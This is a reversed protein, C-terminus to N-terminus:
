EVLQRVQGVTDNLLDKVFNVTFTAGTIADFESEGDPQGEGVVTLPGKKGRFQERFWAEGIRAGLGPTENQRLFDVGTLRELNGDFGVAATIEGWLGPGTRIFVYGATRGDPGLVEYYPPQGERGPRERVREGFLAAIQAAASPLPLGAAFLVSRKLFVQENLDVTPKTLLYLLSVPTIFVVTVIVTFVVIWLRKNM